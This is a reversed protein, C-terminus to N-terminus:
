LRLPSEDEFRTRQYPGFTRSFASLLHVSTAPWCCTGRVQEIGERIKVEHYFKYPCLARGGIIWCNPKCYTNRDSLFKQYKRLWENRKEEESGPLESNIETAIFTDPYDNGERMSEGGGVEDAPDLIRATYANAQGSNGSEEVSVQM